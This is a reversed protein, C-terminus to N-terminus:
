RAEETCDHDSSGFVENMKEAIQRTYESKADVWKKFDAFSTKRSLKGKLKEVIEAAGAPGVRSFAVLSLYDRMQRFNPNNALGAKELRTQISNRMGQRYYLYLGIGHMLNRAYGGGTGVYQCHRANQFRDLQLPLKAVPELNKCSAPNAVMLSQLFTHGNEGLSMERAADTTIQASGMGSSSQLFAGFASENNIKSFVLQPDIPDGAPSLCGLVQNVTWHMYDVYRGTMCPTEKLKRPIDTDARCVLINDTLMPVRLIAKEICERKIFRQPPGAKACAVVLKEGLNQTGMLPRAEIPARCASDGGGAKTAERWARLFEDNGVREQGTLQRELDMPGREGAICAPSAQASKPKPVLTEGEAALAQLFIVVLMMGCLWASTLCRAFVMDSNDVVSDLNNLGSGPGFCRRPDLPALSSRNVERGCRDQFQRWRGM